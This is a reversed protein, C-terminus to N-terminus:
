LINIDGLFPTTVMAPKMGLEKLDICPIRQNGQMRWAHLRHQGDLWKYGCVVAPPLNAGVMKDAYPKGRGDREDPLEVEPFAMEPVMSLRFQHASLSATDLGNDELIDSILQQLDDPLDCFKVTTQTNEDLMHM